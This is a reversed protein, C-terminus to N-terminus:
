VATFAGVPRLDRALHLGDGCPSLMAEGAHTYLALCTTMSSEAACATVEIRSQCQPRSRAGRQLWCGGSRKCPTTSHVNGLKMHCVCYIKAYKGQWTRACILM